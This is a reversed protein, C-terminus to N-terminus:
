EGLLRYNKGEFENIKGMINKIWTDKLNKCKEVIEGIANLIKEETIDM